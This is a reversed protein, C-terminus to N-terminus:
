AAAPITSTLDGLAAAPALTATAVRGIIRRALCGSWAVDGLGHRGSRAPGAPQVAAVAPRRERQDVERASRAAWCKNVLGRYDELVRQSGGSVVRGWRRAAAIMLPGEHLTRTEPKQCYVDKGNRCAEIVVIAHWHDPTACHIADIDTRRAPRPLGHIGQLGPEQLARGRGEAANRTGTARRM